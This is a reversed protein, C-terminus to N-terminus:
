VYCSALKETAVSVNGGALPATTFYLTINPHTEPCCTKRPDPPSLSDCSHALSMIHLIWTVGLIITVQVGASACYILRACPLM